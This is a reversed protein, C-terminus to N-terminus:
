FGTGLTYSTGIRNFSGQDSWKCEHSNTYKTLSISFM